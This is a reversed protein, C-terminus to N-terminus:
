HFVLLNLDNEADYLPKIKDALLRLIPIRKEENANEYDQIIETIQQPARTNQVTKRVKLM